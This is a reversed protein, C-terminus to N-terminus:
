EVWVWRARGHCCNSLDSSCSSIKLGRQEANQGQSYRRLHIKLRQLDANETKGGAVVQFLIKSPQRAVGGQGLKSLDSVHVIKSQEQIANKLKSKSEQTNELMNSTQM